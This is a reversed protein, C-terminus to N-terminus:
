KWRMDMLLWMKLLDSINLSCNDNINDIQANICCLNSFLLCLIPLLVYVTELPSFSELVISTKVCAGLIVVKTWSFKPDVFHVNRM